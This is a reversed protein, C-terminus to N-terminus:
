RTPVWNHYLETQLTVVFRLLDGSMLSSSLMSRTSSVWVSTCSLLILPIQLNVGNRTTPGVNGSGTTQLNATHSWLRLSSTLLYIVWSFRRTEHLCAIHSPNQQALMLLLIWFRLLQSAFVNGVGFHLTAELLKMSKLNGKWVTM